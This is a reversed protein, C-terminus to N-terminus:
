TNLLHQRVYWDIESISIYKNPSDRLISCDDSIM